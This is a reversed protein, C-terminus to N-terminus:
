AAEPALAPFEEVEEDSQGTRAQEFRVSAAARQV